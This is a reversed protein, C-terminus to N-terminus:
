TVLELVFAQEAIIVVWRILSFEGVDHVLLLRFDGTNYAIWLFIRFFQRKNLSSCFFLLKGFCFCSVFSSWWSTSALGLGVQCTLSGAEMTTRFGGPLIFAWLQCWFFACCKELDLFITIGFPFTVFVMGLHTNHSRTRGHVDLLVHPTHTVQGGPEFSIGM